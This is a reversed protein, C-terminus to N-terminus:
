FDYHEEVSKFSGSTKESQQNCTNLHLLARDVLERMGAAVVKEFFAKAREYKRAQMARVGAEYNQVTQAFRPDDQLTPRRPPAPVAAAVTRSNGSLSKTKMRKSSSGKLRAAAKKKM